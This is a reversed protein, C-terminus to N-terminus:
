GIVLASGQFERRDVRECVARVQGAAQRMAIFFLDDYQPAFSM